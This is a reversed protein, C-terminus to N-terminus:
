RECENNKGRPEEAGEDPERDVLENDKQDMNLLINLEDLRASKTKLEGKQAFPREVEAKNLVEDYAFMNNLYDNYWEGDTFPVTQRKNKDIQKDYFDNKLL